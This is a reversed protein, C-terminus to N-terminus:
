VGDKGQILGADAACARCVHAANDTDPVACDQCLPRDCDFCNIFPNDDGCDCCPDDMM